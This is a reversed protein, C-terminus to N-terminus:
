TSSGTWARPAPSPPRSRSGAVGPSAAEGLLLSKTEIALIVAVTVLLLGIAATGAVDWYHNGTILSMGVGVLAFVLGLLAAVDELLIM